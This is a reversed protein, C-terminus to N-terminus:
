VLAWFRIRLQRTGYSWHGSGYVLTVLVYVVNRRAGNSWLAFACVLTALEM